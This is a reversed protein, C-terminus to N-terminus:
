ESHCSDDDHEDCDGWMDETATPHGKQWCYHCEYVDHKCCWSIPHEGTASILCVECRYIM